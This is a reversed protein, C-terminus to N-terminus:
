LNRSAKLERLNQSWIDPPAIMALENVLDAVFDQDPGEFDYPENLLLMAAWLRLEEGSIEGRTHAELARTVDEKQIPVGPQPLLYFSCFTRPNGEFNTHIMGGLHSTLQGLGMRLHLFDVLSQREDDRLRRLEPNVASRSGILM